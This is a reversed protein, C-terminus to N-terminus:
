RGTGANEGSPHDYFPSRKVALRLAQWYIGAVVKMTMAPHRLMVKRLSSRSIPERRLSLRAEFLPRGERLNVMHVDITEGPDRFRWDYEIDMQMFPSVHFAKPFRHRNWTGEFTEGAETGLVYCHREMWPINNIEAVVTELKEGDPSYCYFFSVPNFCHGFYRLHTLMRVPGGPRNGLREAVLDRIAADLPVAPDGLHDERRLWALNPRDASWFPIGEFVRPLESLDLYMMFLPYRFSNEVPAHRQHRVEGLYVASHTV